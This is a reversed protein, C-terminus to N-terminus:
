LILHITRIIFLFTLFSVFSSTICFIRSILPIRKYFAFSLFCNIIAILFTILLPIFIQYKEGLKTEGWPLQNFLPVFPPLNKYFILIYILTLIILIFSILFGILLIRDGLVIKFIEKM